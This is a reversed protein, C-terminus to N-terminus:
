ENTCFMREQCKVSPLYNFWLVIFLCIKRLQFAWLKTNVNINIWEWKTVWNWHIPMASFFIFLFFCCFIWKLHVQGYVNPQNFIIISRYIGLFLFIIKKWIKRIRRWFLAVCDFISNVFLFFPFESFCSIWRAYRTTFISHFVHLFYSICLFSFLIVVFAFLFSFTTFMAYHPMKMAVCDCLYLTPTWLSRPFRPAENDNVFFSCSSSCSCRFPSSKSHVHKQMKWSYLAPFM